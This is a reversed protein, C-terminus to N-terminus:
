KLAGPRAWVRCLMGRLVEGSRELQQSGLGSHIGAMDQDGPLRRATLGRQPEARVGGPSTLPTMALTCLETTGAGEGSVPLGAQVSPPAGERGHARRLEPPGVRRPLGPTMGTPRMPPWRRSAQPSCSRTQGDQAGIDVGNGRAQAGAPEGIRHGRQAKGIGSVKDAAEGGPIAIQAVIGQGVKAAGHGAGLGGLGVGVDLQEGQECRLSWCVQALRCSIACPMATRDELALLALVTAGCAPLKPSTMLM